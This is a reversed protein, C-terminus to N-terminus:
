RNMFKWDFCETVCGHKLAMKVFGKRSKLKLTHGTPHAELAEKAGGIIIVAANGKGEKTLIWDISEKSM